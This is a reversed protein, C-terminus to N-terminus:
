AHAPHTLSPLPLRWLMAGGCRLATCGEAVFRLGWDPVSDLHLPPAVAQAPRAFLQAVLAARAAPLSLGARRPPRWPTCTRRAARWAQAPPPIWTLLLAQDLRCSVWGGERGGAWGGM